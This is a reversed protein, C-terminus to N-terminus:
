SEWSPKKPIQPKLVLNAGTAVANIGILIALGLYSVWKIHSFVMALEILVVFGLAKWSDRFASKGWAYVSKASFLLCGGLIVSYISWWSEWEYHATMFAVLPVTTGLVVGVFLGIASVSFAIRTQDIVSNAERVSVLKVRKSKPVIAKPATKKKAAPKKTAAPKKKKRVERMLEPHIKASAIFSGPRRGPAPASPTVIKKATATNAM